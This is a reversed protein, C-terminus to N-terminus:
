KNKEFVKIFVRGLIQEQSVVGLYRSDNSENRNDGLLFYENGALVIEDSAIGAYEMKIDVVDDELRIGNIFVYGDVIQVTEMPLGVVRKIIKEKMETNDIQVIVVDYRKLNKFRKELLVINGNKYANNMSNGSIIMYDYFYSKFFMVGVIGLAILINSIVKKKNM